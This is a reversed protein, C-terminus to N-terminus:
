CVLHTLWAYGLVHCGQMLSNLKGTLDSTRVSSYAKALCCSGQAELLNTWAQLPLLLCLHCNELWM